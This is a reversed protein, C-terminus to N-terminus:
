APPSRGTRRAAPATGASGAWPLAPRHASLVASGQERERLSLSRRPAQQREGEEQGQGGAGDARVVLRGAQEGRGGPEGGALGGRGAEFGGHGGGVRHVGLPPAAEVVGDQGAQDAAGRLAVKVHLGRGGAQRLAPRLAADGGRVLIRVDVAVTGVRPLLGAVFARDAQDAAGRASAAAPPASARAAPSAAARGCAAGVAQAAGLAADGGCRADGGEVQELAAEVCAPLQVQPPRTRRSTSLASALRCALRSARRADRSDVM